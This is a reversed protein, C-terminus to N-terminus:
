ASRAPAANRALRNCHDIFAQHMPAAQVAADIRDRIAKLNLDAEIDSLQSAAPDVSDPWVDFGAYIALWSAPHFMEWRYRVFHGRSRYLEMKRALTDPVEMDAAQCWFDGDRQNLKYHLIIFDRTREFERKAMDNHEDIAVPDYGDVPLLMHLREIGTQVLAISTSELPELFGSSLGIAVCNKEWARERRGPRFRIIRPDTVAKGPLTEALIRVAEDDSMHASSYVHGNGSRHQLPIHWQWGAPRAMVETFSNPADVRESQQAVAADCFLWRCYDEYGVGLAKGILLAQFGSCDVFLDGEVVEGSDLELAEIFGTAPALRVHKLVADIRRVGAKVAFDRLHNAFLGADFHLAWDFQTWTERSPSPLAFRGAKALAAGLAYDDLPGPNARGRAANFIHHFETAALDQGFGGFPHIFRSDEGAWGSFRIGLKCSANTAAVVEYDTMGLGHYFARLTPITAEGVGITGIASSEIVTIKIGSRRYRHGLSAATMWGATGGGLIVIHNLSRNGQM